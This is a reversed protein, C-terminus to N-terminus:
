LWAGVCSNTFVLGCQDVASLGHTHTCGMEDNQESNIHTKLRGRRLTCQNCLRTHKQSSPFSCHSSSNPCPTQHAQSDERSKELIKPNSAPRLNKRPGIIRGQTWACLGSNRRQRVLLLLRLLMDNTTTALYILVMEAPRSPWCSITLFITAIWSPGLHSPSFSSITM